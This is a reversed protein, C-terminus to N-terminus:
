DWYEHHRINMTSKPPGLIERLLIADKPSHLRELLRMAQTTVVKQEHYASPQAPKVKVSPAKKFQPPQVFRKKHIVTPELEDDDEDDSDVGLSHMLQKLHLEEAKRRKDLEEPNRRQEVKDLAPRLFLYLLALISIFFGIWQTVDM